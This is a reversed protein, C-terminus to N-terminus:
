LTAGLSLFNSILQPPGKYLVYRYCIYILNSSIKRYVAILDFVSITSNVITDAVM